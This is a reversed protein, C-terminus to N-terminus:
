LPGPSGRGPGGAGRGGRGGRPYHSRPSPVRGPPEPGDPLFTPRRRRVSPLPPSRSVPSSREGALGRGAGLPPRSCRPAPETRRLAQPLPRLSLPGPPAIGVDWPRRRRRPEAAGSPSGPEAPPAPEPQPRPRPRAGGPSPRPSRPGPSAGGWLSAGPAGCTASRGGPERPSGGQGAPRVGVVRVGPAGQQLRGGVRVRVSLCASARRGASAESCLAVWASRSRCVRVFTPVCVAWVLTYLCVGGRHDPSGVGSVENIWTCPCPCSRVDMSLCVSVCACLSVSVSACIHVHVNAVMSMRQCQPVCVSLGLSVVHSLSVDM